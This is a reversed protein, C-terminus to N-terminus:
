SGEESSPAAELQLGNPQLETPEPALEPPVEINFPDTSQWQEVFTPVMNRAQLRFLGAAADEFMPQGGVDDRGYAEYYQAQDGPRDQYLDVVVVLGRSRLQNPTFNPIQVPVVPAFFRVATNLLANGRRSYERSAQVQTLLIYRLGLTNGIVQLKALDDTYREDRDLLTLNETLPALEEFEESPGLPGDLLLVNRGPLLEELAPKIHNALVDSFSPADPLLGIGTAEGDPVGPPLRISQTSVFGARVQVQTSTPPFNPVTVDLLHIGEPLQTVLFTGDEQLPLQIGAFTPTSAVQVTGSSVPNGAIDVVQGAIAGSGQPPDVAKRVIQLPARGFSFWQLQPVGAEVVLIGQESESPLTHIGTPQTGIDYTDELRSMTLNVLQLRDSDRSTVYAFDGGPSLAVRTPRWELGIRRVEQGNSALDIVSLDQSGSNLVVLQQQVPDLAMDEPTGGSRWRALLEGNDPNVVLLSLPDEEGLSVFLRREQEDYAIALPSGPLPLNRAEPQDLGIVAVSQASPMTAFVRRAAVDVALDFVGGPLGYAQILEGTELDLVVVGPANPGSAYVLSQEPDMKVVGPAFGVPVQWLREQSTLNVLEVVQDELLGVAVLQDDGAVIVDIRDAGSTLPVATIPTPESLSTDSESFLDLPIEPDEFPIIGALSGNLDTVVYGSYIEPRAQLEFPIKDPDVVILPTPAPTPEPMDTEDAIEDGPSPDPTTSNPSPTVEISAGPDQNPLGQNSQDQASSDPNSPDQDPPNQDSLDQDSPDQALDAQALDFFPLAQAPPSSLALTLVFLFSPSPIRM